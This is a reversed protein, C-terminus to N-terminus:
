LNSTSILNVLHQPPLVLVVSRWGTYFLFGTASFDALYGLTFVIFLQLNNVLNAIIWRFNRTEGITTAESTFYLWLLLLSEEAQKRSNM